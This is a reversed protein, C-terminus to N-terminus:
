RQSGGICYHCNDFGESRAQELTDPNFTVAHGADIIKEIQCAIKENDLDHVEMKNSNGCFRKNLVPPWPRRAM